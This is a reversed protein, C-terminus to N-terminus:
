AIPYDDCNESVYQHITTAILPQVGGFLKNWATECGTMAEAWERSGEDGLYPRTHFKTLILTDQAAFRGFLRAQVVSETVRVEWIEPPPPNLRKLFCHGHADGYVRDGLTWRTLAAELQGRGVLVNAASSSSTLDTVAIQNMYLRRKPPRRGRPLYRTLKGAAELQAIQQHISM